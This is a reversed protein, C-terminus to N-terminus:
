TSRRLQSLTTFSDIYEKLAQNLEEPAINLAVTAGAYFGAQTCEVQIAGADKPVFIQLYELWKKDLQNM